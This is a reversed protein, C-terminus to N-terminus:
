LHNKKLSEKISPPLITVKLWGPLQCDAAVRTVPFYAKRATRKDLLKERVKSYLEPFEYFFHWGLGQHFHMKGGGIRLLFTPKGECDDLHDYIVNINDILSNLRSQHDGKTHEQAADLENLEYNLLEKNYQNVLAPLEEQLSEATFAPQNINLEFRSDIKVCAKLQRGAPLCETLQNTSNQSVLNIRDFLHVETQKSQSAELAADECYLHRFIFESSEQNLQRNFYSDRQLELVESIYKLPNKEHSELATKFSNKLDELKSQDQNMFMLIELIGRIAGKMSSGPISPSGHTHWHAAIDASIAREKARMQMVKTVFEYLDASTKRAEDWYSNHLAKNSIANQLYELYKELLNNKELYRNLNRQHFVYVKDNIMEYDFHRAYKKGTGVHVPTLTEIELQYTYVASSM